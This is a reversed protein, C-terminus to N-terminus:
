TKVAPNDAKFSMFFLVVAAVLSLIAIPNYNGTSEYSLSFLYPGLASGIVIWSLSFGSIAGLNKLGFFRPWTVAVILVYMGGSIGNGTIVMWYPFQGAKLFFLGTTTIIMALMYVLLLYKLKIFDSLWGGLFQFIIAIVSAPLFINIAERSSFGASGFVSVVHFILGSIYLANLALAMTFIWFVRTKKAELLTYDVPPLSPPNDLIPKKRLKGDPQCKCDYPNDRYFLLVFTVFGLGLIVALLLWAGKWERQEIMENLFKPAYSFGFSVFIGMIGNAFGRRKDFWKMVMNRSVMTLLGQGFFRIGWFGFILLLFTSLEISMSSIHYSLFAALRDIRTLFLLMIGLIGGAIFGMIRAGYRDYYRGARTILLGSGITGFLYALSLHNRSIELDRLLNETFASVGMTQGPISMLVGITGAALIMWGYFVPFRSPPFPINCFKKM